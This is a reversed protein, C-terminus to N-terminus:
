ETPETGNLAPLQPLGLGGFAQALSPAAESETVIAAQADGETPAVPLQPAFGETPVAVPAAEQPAGLPFPVEETTAPAASPAPLVATLPLPAASQGDVRTVLLQVPTPSTLALEPMRVAIGLESWGLVEANLKLGGVNLFVQGAESGFGEGQLEVPGGVAVEPNAPPAIALDVPRVDGLPLVAMTTVSSSGLANKPGGVLVFLMSFPGPEARGPYTMAMVEVPLRLDVPVVAGPAMAALGEVATPLSPSFDDSIGATLMVEFPRSLPFPTINKLVIRFRPGQGASANGLDVLRVDVLELPFQAAQQPAPQPTTYGVPHILPPLAPAAVRAMVPVVPTVRHVHVRKVPYSSHSKPRYGGGGGPCAFATGATLGVIIEVVLILLGTRTKWLPKM